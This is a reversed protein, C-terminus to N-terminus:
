KRSAKINKQFISCFRRIKEQNLKYCVKNGSVKEKVLKVEKLEQLHRSITPQSLPLKDVIEGCFNSGSKKLLRLIAIRAPHSVAKALNSMEVLEKSFLDAKSKM